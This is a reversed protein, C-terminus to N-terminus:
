SEAVLLTKYEDATLHRPTELKVYDGQPKILICDGQRLIKEINGEPIDTQITWAISQIATIDYKESSNYHTKKVNTAYVQVMDVWIMYERATSTDKCKVFYCDQMKQWNQVGHNFYDGSVAYLEYVDNFEVTELEGQKTIWTTTKNLEERSVLKPNVAKIMRELGFCLMGVRRQELNDLKAIETFSMPNIKDWFDELEPYPCTEHKTKLFRCGLDFDFKTNEIVIKM